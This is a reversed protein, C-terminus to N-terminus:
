LRPSYTFGQMSNNLPQTLFDVKHETSNGVLFIGLFDKSGLICVGENMKGSATLGVM